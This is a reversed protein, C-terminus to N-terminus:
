EQSALCEGLHHGAGGRVGHRDDVFELRRIGPEGGAEGGLDAVDDALGHDVLGGGLHGVGGRDAGTREDVLVPLRVVVEGAGAVRVVPALSEGVEVLDGELRDGVRDLALRRQLRAPDVHDAGRVGVRDVPERALGVVLHHVGGGIDDALRRHGEDHEVRRDRGGVVEGDALCEGLAEVLGGDLLDEAAAVGLRDVAEEELPGGVVHAVGPERRVVGGPGLLQHRLVLGLM